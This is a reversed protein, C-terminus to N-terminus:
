GEYGEPYQIRVDYRIEPLKRNITLERYKMLTDRMRLLSERSHPIIYKPNGSDLIQLYYDITDIKNYILSIILMKDDNNKINGIELGIYDLDAPDIRKLRNVKNFFGETLVNSKDFVNELYINMKAETVPNNGLGKSLKTILGQAIKSPTQTIMYSVNRRALQNQRKQLLNVTDVSFGMLEWTDDDVDVSGVYGIIKDIASNLDAGYGAQVSYKDAKLEERFAAKNKRGECLNIIPFYILKSLLNNKMAMKTGIPNAVFKIKIIRNIKAPITNSYVMHGVEHMLLATLERENLDAESSLIRSDIEINWLPSGNWIDAIINDKEENVIAMIIKDIVSEDPYISMVICTQNKSTPKVVNVTFSKRTLSNLADAINRLAATDSDNAKLRVFANEIDKFKDKNILIQM